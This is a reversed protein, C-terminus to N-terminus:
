GRAVYVNLEKQDFIGDRISVGHCPVPEKRMATASVFRKNVGDHLTSPAACAGRAVFRHPSYFRRRLRNRSTASPGVHDCGLDMLWVHPQQGSRIISDM